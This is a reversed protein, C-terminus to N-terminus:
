SDWKFRRKLQNLHSHPIRGTHQMQGVIMGPSVGVKQAFRIVQKAEGRLKRLEERFSDPVLVREAFEDAQAEEIDTNDGIGDVFFDKKRHLVAHGAEHFFTFWFQDDALYRFSLQLLVKDHAIMRTAGSARCGSPGRVIAFAVGHESCKERLVRLFRVPDKERTLARLEYLSAEFAAPEWPRCAISEGVIEGQRLWAAVAAARSEFSPSTRFAALRELRAYKEHWSLLDPVGFFELCAGLERSPHPARIWGFKIMDSLPLERTWERGAADLRAADERYQFDRSMWFQVSGGLTRQLKRAVDITIAARGELLDSADQPTCDMLEAFMTSSVGHEVLMDRITDGPASLWDPQFERKM